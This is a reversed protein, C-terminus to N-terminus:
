GSEGPLPSITRDPRSTEAASFGTSREIRSLLDLQRQQIELLDKWANERLLDLKEHLALIELESKLNVEYDLRAHLRDKTSQRNQSMMIIPAQMAAVCSLVLNLLIFPYPDFHNSGQVNYFMWGLLLAAFLMLFTWSGGFTAIRDAAREGLTTTEQEEDPNRSVPKHQLFKNWIRQELWRSSGPAVTTEQTSWAAGVVRASKLTVRVAVHITVLAGIAGVLATAVHTVGMEPETLGSLTFLAGSLLGGIAGLALDIVLGVNPGHIVFRAIWGALLGTLLWQWVHM